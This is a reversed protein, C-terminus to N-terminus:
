RALMTAITTLSVLMARARRRRVVPDYSTWFKAHM